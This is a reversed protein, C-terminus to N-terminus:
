EATSEKVSIAMEIGPNNDEFVVPPPISLAPPTSSTLGIENKLEPCKSNHEM